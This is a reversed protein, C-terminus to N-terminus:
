VRGLSLLGCGFAKAPGIGGSLAQQLLLPESVSLVGEFRATKINIRLPPSSGEKHGTVYGEDVVLLSCFRLGLVSEKKRLWEELTDDRVLGYRKGDRKVSPNARLRFRFLNGARFVATFEKVSVGAPSPYRESFFEWNPACDSQVLVRVIQDDVEPEVRFLVRLGDGYRTFGSMVGKHLVYVDSLLRMSRRHMRDLSLLSLYM